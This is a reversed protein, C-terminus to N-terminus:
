SLPTQLRQMSTIDRPRLPVIDDPETASRAEDLLTDEAPDDYVQNTAEPEELVGFEIDTATEPMLETTKIGGAVGDPLVVGADPLVRVTDASNDAIDYEQNDSIRDISFETLM